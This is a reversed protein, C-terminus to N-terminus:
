LGQLIQILPVPYIGIALIAAGAVAVGTLAFRSTFPTSEPVTADEESKRFLNWVVRLYYFLGIASGVVLTILLPFFAALDTAGAIVIYFKGIFGATLPIGALSLMFLTLLSAIVPRRYYLGRLDDQSQTEHESTSLASLIGFTGLATLVYGVLYIYSAANGLTGGVLFTIFIYGMHAISSYGLLRKLNSQGLALLNGVLITIIVVTSMGAFVAPHALIGMETFFRVAVAVVGAKSIAALFASVPAPAGQYVDPTWWHFPVLSLKFSQGVAIMAFGALIIGSDLVGRVAYLNAAVQSFEMSGLTTYILGMGFLMFATSAAALILYKISAELSAGRAVTYAIMAYVPMALLEISLFFSIFHSSVALSSAGTTALLQLVFFEERHDDLKRFYDYAFGSIILSAFLILGQFLLGLGDVTFMPPIPYPAAARAVGLSLLAAVLIAATFLFAGAFSRVFSIILLLVGAGSALIILPLIAQFDHITM